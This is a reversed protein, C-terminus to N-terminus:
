PPPMKSQLAYVFKPDLEARGPTAEALKGKKWAEAYNGVYYLAIAWNQLNLAHRPAKEYVRAFRAFDDNLLTDNKTQTGAMALANAYDATFDIDDGVLAEAEDFLKLSEDLKGSGGQIAAMGWLASGNSNDILWAQNFRRM